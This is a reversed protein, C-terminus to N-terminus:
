HSAPKASKARFGLQERLATLQHSAEVTRERDSAAVAQALADALVIATLPEATMGTPTNPAYLAVTVDDGIEDVLEDSVLICKAGVTRARELLVEVETPLRGPVFVVVVEGSEIDILDDALRFGTSQISRAHRDMRRLKLALHEAAVYSAGWGYTWIRRADVLLRVALEYPGASVKSRLLEIRDVSETVVNNWVKELDGGTSEVRQRAREEPPIHSTFPAAVMGKLEALGSYGLGQLTRIVTANSTKAEAGLEQASMYLLREPTIASLSRCVGRVAPSFDDWGARIRARLEVLAPNRTADTVDEAM